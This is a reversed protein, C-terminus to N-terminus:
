KLILINNVFDNRNVQNRNLEYRMDNPISWVEEIFNIEFYKFKNM